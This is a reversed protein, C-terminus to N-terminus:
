MDVFFCLDVVLDFIAVGTTDLAKPAFAMEYPIKTVSYVILAAAFMDWVVQFLSLPWLLTLSAPMTVKSVKVEHGRLCSCSDSWLSEGKAPEKSQVGLLWRRAVVQGVELRENGAAAETAGHYGAATQPHTTPISPAPRHPNPVDRAWSQLPYQQAHDLSASLARTM